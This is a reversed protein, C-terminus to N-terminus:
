REARLLKRSNNRQYNRKKRGRGRRREGKTERDREEEKGGDM